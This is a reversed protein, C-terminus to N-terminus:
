DRTVGAPWIIHVPKGNRRAHEVADGTGGQGRAAEGDWIAIMIDCLETITRGAADFAEESPAEYDLIRIETARNRLNFYSARDVESLTEEYHKSPIVAHLDGGATLIAYAFLQDAGAALSSVGILPAPQQSLIQQLSDTIYQRAVEPISQHGTVGIITM